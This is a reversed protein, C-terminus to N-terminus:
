FTTKVSQIGDVQNIFFVQDALEMGHTAETTVIATRPRRKNFSEADQPQELGREATFLKLRELVRRGTAENFFATPKSICLVEPNAVFARALSLLRTSTGSLIESWNTVERDERINSLVSESDVGLLRCIAIARERLGPDGRELTHVGFILNEFLTGHFFMPSDGIFILKLHSPVFAYGKDGLFDPLLCGGLLQLVESKGGGSPGALYVFQGQAIELEGRVGALREARLPINDLATTEMWKKTRERCDLNLGMRYELDMPLNMLHVMRELSPLVTNMSSMVDYIEGWSLGMDNMAQLQTLFMGLPTAGAIVLSGGLLSYLAVFINTLWVAIYTNNELVQNAERYRTNYDAICKEHKQLFYPRRNYAAILSFNVTAQTVLDVLANQSLARQKLCEVTLKTRCQNILLLLVPLLFSTVLVHWSVPKNFLVPALLQFAMIAVVHGLARSLRFCSMYGDVVMVISDRTMGMLLDSPPLTSRVKDDYNLFKCLLASQLTNRSTGGVKWSRKSFDFYHLIGIPFLKLCTVLILWTDRDHFLFLEDEDDSTDLVSDILYVSLLMKLLYFLNHFQDALARKITGCRVIPNNFNLKFYEYLLSLGSDMVVQEVGKQEMDVNYKNTPFSDNDIVKVRAICHEPSVYANVRGEELLKVVFELTVSWEDGEVLEVVIEKLSEGPDFVLTGSTENYREGAKASADATSYRIESRECLNGLRLVDIVIRGHAETCFYIPTSFQLDPADSKEKNWMKALPDHTTLNTTMTAARAFSGISNRTPNSTAVHHVIEARVKCLRNVVWLCDTVDCDTLWQLVHERSREADQLTADQSLTTAEHLLAYTGTKAPQLKQYSGNGEGAM